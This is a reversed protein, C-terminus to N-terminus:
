RTNTLLKKRKAPQQQTMRGMMKPRKMLLHKMRMMSKQTKKLHEKISFTKSPYAKIAVTKSQTKTAVSSVAM